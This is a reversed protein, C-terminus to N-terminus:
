ENQKDKEERPLKLSVNIEIYEFICGLEELRESFVKKLRSFLVADLHTVCEVDSGRFTYAPDALRKLRSVVTM